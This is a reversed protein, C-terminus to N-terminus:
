SGLLRPRRPPSSTLRRLGAHPPESTTAALDGREVWAHAVLGHAAADKSEVGLCLRAAVSYARLVLCEAVSRYLCTNRWPLGPVAALARLTKHAVAVSLAADGEPSNSAPPAALLDTLDGRLRFPTRLASWTGIAAARSQSRVRGRRSDKMEPWRPPALLTSTAM